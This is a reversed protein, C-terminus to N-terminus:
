ISQHRIDEQIRGSSVVKVVWREQEEKTLLKEEYIGLISIMAELAFLGLGNEGGRKIKRIGAAKGISYNWRIISPHPQTFGYWLVGVRNLHIVERNWQPELVGPLIKCRFAYPVTQMCTVNKDQDLFPPWIFDQIRSVYSRQLSQLKNFEYAAWRM